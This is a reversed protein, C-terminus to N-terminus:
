LTYLEDINCAIEDAVDDIMAVLPPDKYDTAVLTGAMDEEASTFFSAKNASWVEKNQSM